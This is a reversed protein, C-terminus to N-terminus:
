PAPGMSRPPAPEGSIIRELRRQKARRRLRYVFFAVACTLAVAPPLFRQDANLNEPAVLVWVIVAGWLVFCMITAAILVMAAVSARPEETHGAREGLTPMWASSLAVVLPQRRHQPRDPRGRPRGEGVSQRPGGRMAKAAHVRGQSTRRMSYGSTHRAGPRCQRLSVSSVASHESATSACGRPDQEPAVDLPHYCQPVNGAAVESGLGM